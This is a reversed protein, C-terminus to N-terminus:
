RIVHSIGCAWKICEGDHSFASCVPIRGPPCTPQPVFFSATVNGAKANSILLGTLALTLFLVNKM